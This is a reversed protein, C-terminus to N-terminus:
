YCDDDDDSPCEPSPDRGHESIFFRENKKETGNLLLVGDGSTTGQVGHAKMPRRFEVRAEETCEIEVSYMEDPREEASRLGGEFVINSSRTCTIETDSYHGYVREFVGHFPINKALEVTSVDAVSMADKPEDKDESRRGLLMQGVTLELAKVWCLRGEDLEKRHIRSVSRREALITDTEKTTDRRLERLPLPGRVILAGENSIRGAGFHEVLFVISPPIEAMGCLFSIRLSISDTQDRRFLEIKAGGSVDISTVIVDFAHRERELEPQYKLLNLARGEYDGRKKAELEKLGAETAKLKKRLRKVSEEHEQLATELDKNKKSMQRLKAYLPSQEKFALHRRRSAKSMKKKM